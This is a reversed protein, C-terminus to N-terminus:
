GRGGKLTVRTTAGEPPPGIIRYTSSSPVRGNSTRSVDPRDRAAARLARLMWGASQYRGAPEKALGRLIVRGLSAPVDHRLTAPDPPARSVVDVLLDVVNTSDFPLRGCLMEFLMVGVAYLDARHDLDMRGRAAEPSAYHPTGYVRGAQTLREAEGEGAVLRSVGFDLIKVYRRTGERALFVNGPKLDRHVIGAAHVVQLAELLRTAVYVAEDVPLRGARVIRRELDMGELLEMVIYPTGGQTIGLLHTRVIGPHEISGALRAERLFRDYAERSSTGETSLFKIAVPEASRTDVGRYIVGMGGAAIIRGVRYNAALVSGGMKRAPDLRHGTRPCTEISRPHADGCHSCDFHGLSLHRLARSM